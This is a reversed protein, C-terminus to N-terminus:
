KNEKEEIFEDLNAYIGRLDRAMGELRKSYHHRSFDKIHWEAEEICQRAFKLDEM